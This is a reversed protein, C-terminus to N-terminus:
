RLIRYLLFFVVPLVIGGIVLRRRGHAAIEERFSRMGLPLLAPVVMSRYRENIMGSLGLVLLGLVVVGFPVARCRTWPQRDLLRLFIALTAALLIGASLWELMLEATASVDALSAYLPFLINAFGRVPVFFTDAVRNPSAMRRLVSLRSLGDSATAEMRDYGALALPNDPRDYGDLAQPNDPDDGGSSGGGALYMGIVTVVSLLVMWSGRRRPAEKRFEFSTALSVVLLPAAVARVWLMLAVLAGILLSQAWRRMRSSCTRIACAVLFAVLVEKSTMGRWCLAEPYMLWLALFPLRSASGSEIDALPALLFGAGAWLLWNAVCGVLPDPTTIGYLLSLLVPYGTQGFAAMDSGALIDTVSSSANRAAFLHYRHADNGLGRALDGLPLYPIFESVAYWVTLVLSATLLVFIALYWPPAVRDNV